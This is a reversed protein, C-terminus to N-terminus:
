EESRHNQETSRLQEQFARTLEHSSGLVIACPRKPVATRAGPRSVRFRGACTARNCNWFAQNEPCPVNDLRGIDGFRMSAYFGCVQMDMVGDVVTSKRLAILCYIKSRGKRM